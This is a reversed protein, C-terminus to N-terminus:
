RDWTEFVNMTDLVQSFNDNTTLHESLYSVASLKLYM